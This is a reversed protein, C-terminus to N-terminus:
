FINGSHVTLVHSMPYDISRVAIIGIGYLRNDFAQPM